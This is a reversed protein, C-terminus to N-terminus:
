AKLVGGTFNGTAPDPDIVMVSVNRKHAPIKYNRTSYGIASTVHEDEPLMYGMATLWQPLKSSRGSSEIVLDAALTTQQELQGRERVHVGTIRTHDANTVLGTVEHHYLFRIHATAQVRQRLAWELLSRSYTIGKQEGGGPPFPITGYPNAMLISADQQAQFAGLAELDGLFGPFLQQLVAEGRPLIQHLHFSQPVGPRTGPKEPREDREIVLVDSYQEALVRAAILGAIGAGVILAKKEQESTLPINM